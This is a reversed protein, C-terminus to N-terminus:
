GALLNAMTDALIANLAHGIHMAKFPNLCDTEIVVTQGARKTTPEKEFFKSRSQDSPKVNIFGPGAM